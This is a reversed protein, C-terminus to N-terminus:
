ARGPPALLLAWTADVLWEVVRDHSWGREATLQVYCRDGCLTLLVDTATAATLGARLPGKATLIDVVQRYGEVQMRDHRDHVTRVDPDTLAAARVVESVAAARYLLPAVGTVFARLALHATPADRMGAWWTSDQPATPDSGLVAADIVGGALESKTHFVFYVTQAAVGARRAIAAITAGHYGQEVFEAHAAEVIRARTRRARERRTPAKVEDVAAM